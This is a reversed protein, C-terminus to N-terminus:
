DAPRSGSDDRGYNQGYGYTDPGSRTPLDVYVVGSVDGGVQNIREIADHVSRLRTQSHRVSLLVLDCSSVLELADAVRTAPASDIVVLDANAALRNLLEAMRPSALLEAPNPALSGGALVKLNEVEILYDDLDDGNALLDSLGPPQGLGFVGALQPSRLDADVLVVKLGFQAAVVALNSALSTKGEGETASTVLLLKGAAPAPRKAKSLAPPQPAKIPKAPVPTATPRDKAVALLFRINTGLARYAESVPSSPDMVTALRGSKAHIWHPIRGLVARPAIAQRLRGEDRVADDFHDRVFALGIGLLLGLFLGLAGSRLPRPESPSGPLPAPVLVQGGGGLAGPANVSATAQDSLIQTLEVLLAQQESQLQAREAGTATQIQREVKALQERTTKAEEQLAALASDRLETAQEDRFTLYEEAFAAAVKQAEAATPRTATVTVVRTETEQGATVSDLLQDPTVSLDLRRIVREAVPTSQLVQMQTAIEAPQMVLGNSATQSATVPSIELSTSSRYLTPQSLSAALALLLGAAGCLVLWRWRRRLVAVLDRLNIADSGM